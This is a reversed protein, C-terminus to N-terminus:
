LPNPIINTSFASSCRYFKHSSPSLISPTNGLHSHSKAHHKRSRRLCLLILLQLLGCLVTRVLGKLPLHFLFLCFLVPRSYINPNLPLKWAFSFARDSRFPMSWRDFARSFRVQCGEEFM